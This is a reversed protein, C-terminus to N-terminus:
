RACTGGPQIQLQAYFMQQRAVIVYQKYKPQEQQDM